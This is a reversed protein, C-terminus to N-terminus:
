NKNTSINVFIFQMDYKVSINASCMLSTLLLSDCIVIGIGRYISQGRISFDSNLFEHDNENQLVYKSHHLLYINEGEGERERKEEM